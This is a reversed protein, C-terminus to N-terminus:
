TRAKSSLAGSRTLTEDKSPRLLFYLLVAVIVLAVATGTGFGGSAFLTGLQYISLSVGYSLLTQYGVAFLTWKGNNMERKIAGIAAFCPTCLLNFVLFSYASITTFDRALLGWIHAGTESVESFGYLIGLTAVVNEKAVLGTIAAVAAQWHGWGLPAFIPAIVGGLKALIGDSLDEVMGFSGDVFGFNSIFWIVISSLLIITGAKKIFSWGREWMSRLVNGVTPWHYAPLEMVFPAPDGAFLKTKKLIIGSCIIAIIGVFYASPAVWWAENFLAGAILAIIPIKAGCPIFTTTMITMRRDRQNEITRSAMIGPVGCGTGILIPIFSKGSLRFKRFIRDMIFAIRAMYGCSELFALFIFLVFMQPVFGLVAGVGAVIGDLILGKLLDATGISELFGEVAPPIIEGFLVENTWDTVWTGVTTVSVYYVIFMVVAFIPLALYRNTVVKDIKDSTTLKGKNKKIYCGRIISAIYLYRENTIISEADDDMEEECSVIDEEIHQRLEESLGLKELVKEDREFVKIAYWRQQSEDFMGQTAEEIHAIAHEVSGSFTHQPKIPVKQRALEVVKETAETIGTGKLASIEVVPCGLAESLRDTFITDGSKKVIDMMNVALVMPIGLELLQTTLYLNRELNTGDVINLIADPREDILYNRAIVEELTYPSLSYIGPLDIILIDKNNKLKGEKKEVTVGPWNGVFQNSGTLANFLTTKGSNPNGALAIKIPM